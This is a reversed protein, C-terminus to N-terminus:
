GASTPERRARHLRCPRLRHGDPPRTWPRDRDAPRACRARPGVRRPRHPLGGPRRAGHPRRHDHHDVADHDHHRRRQTSAPWPCRRHCPIPRGPCSTGTSGPFSQKGFHNMRSEDLLTMPGVGPVPTIQGAPARRRLQLRHAAGQRGARSSATPTDTSPPPDDAPRRRARPLQPRLDRRLLPRGLGGELCPIDSADGIAWVDDHGRAFPSRRPTSRCMTRPRRGPRASGPFDAGQQAPCPSWSASRCRPPARRVVGTRLRGRGIREVVFDPEVAIGREELLHGLRASAIPRHLGRCRRSTPSRSPTAATGARATRRPWSRVGPTRDPVQDADRDRLSWAAAASATSPTAPGPGRSPTSSTCPAGGCGGAM